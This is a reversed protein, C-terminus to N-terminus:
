GMGDLAHCADRTAALAVDCCFRSAASSFLNSISRFVSARLLLMARSTHMTLRMRSTGRVCVRACMCWALRRACARLGAHTRMYLCTGACSHTEWVHVCEHARARGRSVCKCAIRHRNCSVARATHLAIPRFNLSMCKFAASFARCARATVHRRLRKPPRNHEAHMCLAPM